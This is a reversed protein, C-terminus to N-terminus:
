DVIGWFNAIWYTSHFNIDKTYIGLKGGQTHNKGPDILIKHGTNKISLMVIKLKNNKNYYSRANILENEMFNSTTTFKNKDINNKTIWQNLLKESMKPSTIKDDEGQLIAIKPIHKSHTNNDDVLISPSAVLAAGNFLEPYANLLANSMGGGASMGTIFTKSPNINYKTITYTIMNKISLVEGKDKKAKMGVFFNFCKGVNNILRQEPYVVIFGFHNALTNWGTATAIDNASQTCGHLVIILPVKKADNIQPPIHIYMKLRGPNEGFGKVKQLSQSFIFFPIFALIFTNATKKIQTKM